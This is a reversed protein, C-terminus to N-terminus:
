FPLVIVPCATVHDDLLGVLTDTVLPPRIVPTAAPEDVIVAVEDPMEPVDTMVTIAGGGGVGVGVVSATDGDLAEITTPAVCAREAM